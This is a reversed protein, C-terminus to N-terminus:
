PHARTCTYQIRYATTYMNVFNCSIHMGLTPTRTPETGHFELKVMCRGSARCDSASYKVELQKCSKKAYKIFDRESRM